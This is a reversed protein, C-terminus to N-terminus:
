CFGDENLHSKLIKSFTLYIGLGGKIPRYHTVIQM